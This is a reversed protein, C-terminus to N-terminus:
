SNLIKKLKFYRRGLRWRLRLDKANRWILLWIGRDFFEKIIQKKVDISQIANISHIIGLGEKAIQWYCANINKAVDKHKQNIADLMELIKMYNHITRVHVTDNPTAHSVSESHIFYDYYREDIYKVRKATLLVETTWPIDQHHLGPEFYHGHALLFERRYINLWTVHLFKKSNLAMKLWEPGALVNTSRLRNSPFIPRSPRGDAYVYHGNCTLVDLDNTKAINIMRSYMNCHIVDDIDPFVVYQGKSINFGTNRAVSVGQNEQDIITVDPFKEKWEYLIALSNDKSGDNVLILEWGERKQSQLNIFFQSLFKEGNYIAVVISLQPISSSM